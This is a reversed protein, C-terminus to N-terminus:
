SPRLDPEPLLEILDDMLQDVEVRYILADGNRSRETVVLHRKRLEALARKVTSPSIGCWEGLDKQSIYGHYDQRLPRNPDTRVIWSMLHLLVLKAYSTLGLNTRFLANPLVTFQTATVAKWLDGLPMEQGHISVYGTYNHIGKREPPNLRKTM